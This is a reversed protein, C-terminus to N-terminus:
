NPPRSGNVLLRSAEAEEYLLHPSPIVNVAKMPIDLIFYMLSVLELSYLIIWVYSMSSRPRDARLTMGPGEGRQMIPVPSWPLLLQGKWATTGPSKHWSTGPLIWWVSISDSLICSLSFGPNNRWWWRGVGLHPRQSDKRPRWSRGPM